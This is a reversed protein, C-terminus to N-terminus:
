QQPHTGSARIPSHTKPPSNLLRVNFLDLCNRFLQGYSGCEGCEQFSPSTIGLCSSSQIAVLWCCLMSKRKMSSSIYQCLFGVHVVRFPQKRRFCAVCRCGHCMFLVMCSTDHNYIITIITSITLIMTIRKM